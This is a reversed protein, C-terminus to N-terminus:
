RGFHDREEDRPDLINGLGRRVHEAHEDARRGAALLAAAIFGLSAGCIAGAVVLAICATSM